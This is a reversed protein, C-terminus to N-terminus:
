PNMPALWIAVITGSKSQTPMIQRTIPRPIAINLFPHGIQINLPTAFPPHWSLDLAKQLNYSKLM